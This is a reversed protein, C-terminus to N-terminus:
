RYNLATEARLVPLVAVRSANMRIWCDGVLSMKMAFEVYRFAEYVTTPEPRHFRGNMPPRGSFVESM